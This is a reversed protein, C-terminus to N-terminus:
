RFDRVTSTEKIFEQRDDSIPNLNKILKINESAGSNGSIRRAFPLILNSWDDYDKLVSFSGDSNLDKSYATTTNSSNLNWDAYSNTVVVVFLLFV